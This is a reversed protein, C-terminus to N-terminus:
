QLIRGSKVAYSAPTIICETRLLWLEHFGSLFLLTIELFCADCTGTPSPSRHHLMRTRSRAADPLVLCCRLSSERTSLLACDEFSRDSIHAPELISPLPRSFLARSANVCATIASTTLNFQARKMLKISHFPSSSTQGIQTCHLIELHILRPSKKFCCGSVQALTTSQIDYQLM